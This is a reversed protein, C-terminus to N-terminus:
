GILELCSHEKSEYFRMIKEHNDRLLKIVHKTSTNECKLWIIKTPHNALINREQFYPDITVLVYNNIRAYQWVMADDTQAMGLRGIQVVEEYQSQLKKIAKYSINQDLLIKM